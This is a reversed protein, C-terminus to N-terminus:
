TKKTEIKENISERNNSPDDIIVNSIKVKSTINANLLKTADRLIEEETQPGRLPLQGMFRVQEPIDSFLEEISNLGMIELMESERGLNPLQDM